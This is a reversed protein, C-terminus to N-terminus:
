LRERVAVVMEKTKDISSSIDALHRSLMQRLEQRSCYLLATEGTNLDSALFNDLCVKDQYFCLVALLTSAYVEEGNELRSIASQTLNTNTALQQQKIGLHKTIMRLRRGLEKLDMM